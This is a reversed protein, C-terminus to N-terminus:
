HEEHVRQPAAPQPASQGDPRWTGHAPRRVHGLDRRVQRQLCGGLTGGLVLEQLGRPTPGKGARVVAGPSNIRVQPNPVNFAFGFHVGEIARVPLKDVMDIIEVRDLGDVLRVERVLAQLWARRVRGAAVGGVAGNGQRLDKAPGNPKADKVNGGPLYIYNNIPGKAM